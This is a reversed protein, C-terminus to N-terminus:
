FKCDKSLLTFIGGWKEKGLMIGFVGGSDGLIGGGCVGREVTEDADLVRVLNTGTFTFL